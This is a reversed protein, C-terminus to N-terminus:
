AHVCRYYRILKMDKLFCCDRALWATQACYNTKKRKNREKRRAQGSSVNGYPFSPFASLFSLLGSLFVFFAISKLSSALQPVASSVFLLQMRIINKKDRSSPLFLRLPIIKDLLSIKSLTSQLPLQKITNKDKDKESKKTLIFLM